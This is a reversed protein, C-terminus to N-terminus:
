TIKKTKAKSKRRIKEIIQEAKEEDYSVESLMYNNFKEQEMLELIRKYKADTFKTKMVSDNKTGAISLAMILQNNTMNIMATDIDDDTINQINNGTSIAISQMIIKKFNNKLEKKNINVNSEKKINDIVTDIDKMTMNSPKNLMSNLNQETSQVSGNLRTAARLMINKREEESMANFEREVDKKSIEKKIDKININRSKAIDSVIEQEINSIYEKINITIEDENIAQHNEIVSQLDKYKTADQAMQKIINISTTNIKDLNAGNTISPDNIEEEYRQKTVDIDVSMAVQYMINSIIEPSIFQSAQKILAELQQSQIYQDAKLKEYEKQIEEELFKKSAKYQAALRDSIVKQNQLDGMHRVGNITSIAGLTNLNMLKKALNKMKGKTGKYKKGYGNKAYGKIKKSRLPKFASVLGIGVGEDVVVMPLSAVVGFTGLVHKTSEKLNSKFEQKNETNVKGIEDELEEAAELTTKGSVNAAELLDKVNYEKDKSFRSGKVTITESGTAQATDLADRIDLVRNQRRYRNVDNFFNRIPKTVPSTVKGLVHGNAKILKTGIKKIASIGFATQAIDGLTGSKAQMGFIKKFITEAKLVFNVLLLAILIGYISEGAINFALSIFLLYLLCHVSQIIVNLTYDRLWNSLSQSKNDKIKDIAYTIAIIPALFTLIAISLFRKIYVILFRILLYILLVYIITAPWGVSAQIAYSQNRITDYLSEEAGITSHITTILVENIQLIIVMIYHISFVLVFSAVWSILLQKYKAKKEAVTSIAMRIGIYILTILLGVITINRILYYLSAVNERIIYIVSDTQLQEGGAMSFNFFNADLIPVKNTVLKEITLSAEEGTVLQMISNILLEFLGAWGLIIIRLLYTIIGVFWDLIDKLSNLIWSADIVWYGFEGSQTGQYSVSIDKGTIGGQGNFIETAKGSAIIEDATKSDIRGVACYHFTNVNRRKLTPQGGSSDIIEGDGVYIVVHPMNGAQKCFLIDGPMFSTTVTGSQSKENGEICEFGNKFGPYQNNEGPPTAFYTFKNDGIGLSQHVAFSVWGVCDFAYKGNYLSGGYTVERGAGYDYTTNEGFNEYFNICFAALTKGCEQQNISSVASYVKKYSYSSLIIIIIVIILAIKKFIKQM